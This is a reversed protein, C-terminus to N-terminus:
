IPQPPRRPLPLPPQRRVKPEEQTGGSYTVWHQPASATSNQKIAEELLRELEEVRPVLDTPDGTDPATSHPESGPRPRKAAHEGSNGAVQPSGRQLVIHGAKLFADFEAQTLTSTRLVDTGWGPRKKLTELVGEAKEADPTLNQWLALKGSGCM